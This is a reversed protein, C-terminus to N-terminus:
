KAARSLQRLFAKLDERRFLRYGNVPNRTAPVKGSDAWSKLTNEAVGLLDAAESIKVYERLTQM